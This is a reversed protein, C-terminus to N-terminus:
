FLTGQQAPGEDIRIERDCSECRWTRTKDTLIVLLMPCWDACRPKALPPRAKLKMARESIDPNAM